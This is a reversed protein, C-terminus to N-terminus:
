LNLESSHCMVLKNCQKLGPDLSNVLNSPIHLQQQSSILCLITRKDLESNSSFSMLSIVKILM